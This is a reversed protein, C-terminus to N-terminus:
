ALFAETPANKYYNRPKPGPIYCWPDFKYPHKKWFTNLRSKISNLSPTMVVKDPLSNWSDIVRLSFSNSRRKLRHQKKALEFQHGRTAAYNSFKFFTDKEVQDINNMIKYVEILDARERRYELSPLGLKKLREQYSLHKISTVLKTERMQVNEIAIMDQKTCLHTCTVAYEIHPLVISKYLNLFM